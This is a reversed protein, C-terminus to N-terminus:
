RPPSSGTCTSLNGSYDHYAIFGIPIGEAIRRDWWTPSSRLTGTRAAASKRAEASRPRTSRISSRGPGHHHRPRAVGRPHRQLVGVRARQLDVMRVRRLAPRPSNAQARGHRRLPRHRQMITGDVRRPRDPDSPNWTGLERDDQPQRHRDLQVPRRRRRAPLAHRRISIYPRAGFREIEDLTRDIPAFNYSYEGSLGSRAPANRGHSGGQDAHRADPGRHPHDEHGRRGPRRRVRRRDAHAPVRDREPRDDRDVNAVRRRRAHWHPERMTVPTAPVRGTISVRPPGVKFGSATGFTGGVMLGDGDAGDGLQWPLACTLAAGVQVGNVYARIQDGIITFRSRTARGPSCAPPRRQNRHRRQVQRRHGRARRPLDAGRVATTGTRRVSLFVLFTSSAISLLHGGTTVDDWDLTPIRSCPKSPGARGTWYAMSPTPSTRARGPTPRAMGGSFTFKGEATAQSDSGNATILQGGDANITALSTFDGLLSTDSEASTLDTLPDWTATADLEPRDL